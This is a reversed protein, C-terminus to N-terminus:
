LGDFQQTCAPVFCAARPNLRFPASAVLADRKREEQELQKALAAAENAEDVELQFTLLAVARAKAKRGARTVRRRTQKKKQNPVAAILPPPIKHNPKLQEPQVCALREEARKREEELAVSDVRSKTVRTPRTKHEPAAAAPQDMACTKVPISAPVSAVVLSASASSASAPSASVSSAPASPSPAAANARIPQSRRDLLSRHM